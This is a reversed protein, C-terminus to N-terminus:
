FMVQLIFCFSVKNVKNIPLLAAPMISSLLPTELNIHFNEPKIIMEVDKSRSESTPISFRKITDKNQLTFVFPKLFQQREEVDFKILIKRLMIRNFQGRDTVKDVFPYFITNELSSDGTSTKIYPVDLDIDVVSIFSDYVPIQDIRKSLNDIEQKYDHTTSLIGETPDTLIKDHKLDDLIEFVQQRILFRIQRFREFIEDYRDLSLNPNELEKPAKKVYDFADIFINAAFPFGKLLDEIEIGTHEAERILQLRLIQQIKELTARTVTFSSDLYDISKDQSEFEESLQKLEYETNKIKNRLDDDVRLPKIATDVSPSYITETHPQDHQIQKDKLRSLDFEINVFRDNYTKALMADLPINGTTKVVYIKIKEFWTKLEKMLWGLTVVDDDNEPDAVNGIIVGKADFVRGDYTLVQFVKSAM